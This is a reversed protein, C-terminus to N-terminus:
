LPNQSSKHILKSIQMKTRYSTKNSFLVSNILIYCDFEAWLRLSWVVEVVWQQFAAASGHRPCRNAETPHRSRLQSSISTPHPFWFVWLSPEFCTKLGKLICICKICHLTPISMFIIFKYNQSLVFNSYFAKSVKTRGCSSIVNTTYITAILWM